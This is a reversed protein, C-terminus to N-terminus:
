RPPIWSAAPSPSSFGASNYGFLLTLPRLEVETRDAFGRYNQVSFSTLRMPPHSYLM